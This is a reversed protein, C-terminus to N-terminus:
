TIWFRTSRPRATPSSSASSRGLSYLESRMDPSHGARREPSWAPTPEQFLGFDTVKVDGSASVLINEPKLNRHLVLRMWAAGIARAAKLFVEVGERAPLPGAERLSRGEFAETVFFRRGGERGVSDV